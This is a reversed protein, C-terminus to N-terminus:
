VACGSKFKCAQRELQFVWAICGPESSCRDCCGGPGDTQVAYNFLDGGKFDRGPEAACEQQWSVAESPLPITLTNTPTRVPPML